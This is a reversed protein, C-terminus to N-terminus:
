ESDDYGMEAAKKRDEAAGAKDGLEARVLSRVAYAQGLKPDAAIAADLYDAALLYDDLQRYVEGKQMLSQPDNPVLALSMNLDRLAPEYRGEAKWALARNFFAFDYKADIEIAKGFEARAAEYQGENHFFLGRRNRVLTSRPDAALAADLDALAAKDDGAAAHAEARGLLLAVENPARKLAKGYAKVAESARGEAILAEARQQWWAASGREPAAQEVPEATAAPSFPIALALAAAAIWSKRSM